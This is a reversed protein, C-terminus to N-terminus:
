REESFCIFHLSAMASANEVGEWYVRPIDLSAVLFLCFGDTLFSKLSIERPLFTPLPTFCPAEKERGRIIKFM